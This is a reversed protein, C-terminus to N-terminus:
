TSSIFDCMPPYVVNCSFYVQIRCVVITNSKVFLVKKKMPKGTKRDIQQLLEVIECEEVVSHVYLVAKYGATFIAQCAFVFLMCCYASLTHKSPLFHLFLFSLFKSPSLIRQKSLFIPPFPNPPSPIPLIQYISKTLTENEKFNSLNSPFVEM